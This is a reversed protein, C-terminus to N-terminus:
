LLSHPHTTLLPTWHEITFKQKQSRRTLDGLSQRIHQALQIRPPSKPNLTIAGLLIDVLQLLDDTKSDLSQTIAYYKRSSFDHTKKLKNNIAYQLARWRYQKCARDDLFINYKYYELQYMNRLLFVYYAKFFREEENPGWDNWIRSKQIQM